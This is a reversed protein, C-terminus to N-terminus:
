GQAARERFVTLIGAESFDGREIFARLEERGFRKIYMENSEKILCEMLAHCTEGSLEQLLELPIMAFLQRMKAWRTSYADEGTQWKKTEKTIRFLEKLEDSEPKFLNQNPILYDKLFDFLSMKITESMWTQPRIMISPLEDDKYLEALIKLKHSLEKLKNKLQQVSLLNIPTKEPQKMNSTLWDIEKELWEAQIDKRWFMFHRKETSKTQAHKLLQDVIQLVQGPIDPMQENAAIQDQRSLIEVIYKELAQDPEVFLKISRSSLFASALFLKQKLQKNEIGELIKLKEAAAKPDHAPLNQPAPVLAKQNEPPSQPNEGNLAPERYGRQGAADIVSKLTDLHARVQTLKERIEPLLDGSCEQKLKEPDISQINDLVTQAEKSM